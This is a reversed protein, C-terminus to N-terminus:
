EYITTKLIENQKGIVQVINLNLSLAAQEAAYMLNFMGMQIAQLIGSLQESTIDESKKLKCYDIIFESAEQQTIPSNSLIKEITSKNM